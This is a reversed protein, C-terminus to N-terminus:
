EITPSADAERHVRWLAYGQADALVLVVVALGGFLWRGATTYSLLGAVQVLTLLAWLLDLAVVLTVLRKPGRSALNPRVSLWGLFFAFGLLGVGLVVLEISTRGTFAPLMQTPISFLLGCLGSFAANARLLQGLRRTPNSM